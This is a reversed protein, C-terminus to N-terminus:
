LNKETGGVTVKITFYTGCDSCLYTDYDNKFHSIANLSSGMSKSQLNKVNTSGCKPCNTNISYTTPKM